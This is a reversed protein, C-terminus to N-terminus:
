NGDARHLRLLDTEARSRAGSWHRAWVEAEALIALRIHELPKVPGDDRLAEEIARRDILDREALFGDLLLERVQRKNTEMVEYAFSDPHTQAPNADPWKIDTM